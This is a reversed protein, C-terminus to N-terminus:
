GGHQLLKRTAAHQPRTLVDRAAGEEVVEGEALIIARTAFDRAFDALDLGTPADM